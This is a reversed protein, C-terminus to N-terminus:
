LGEEEEEEEEEEGGAGPWGNTSIFYSFNASVLYVM